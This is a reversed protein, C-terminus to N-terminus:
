REPEPPVLSDRYAHAAPVGHDKILKHVEDSSVTPFRRKASTRVLDEKAEGAGAGLLKEAEVAADVVHERLIRSRRKLWAVAAAIALGGLIPVAVIAQEVIAVVLRTLAQTLPDM